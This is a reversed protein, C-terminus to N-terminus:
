DFKKFFILIKGVNNKVIDNKNNYVESIYGFKQYLRVANSNDIQDTYLRINKYGLSKALQETKILIKEGFGKLREDPVVGFWGLFVDEPYSIFSYLGTIGIIKGKVRVLFYKFMRLLVRDNETSYFLDNSGDENPFILRQVIKAQELNDKTVEEFKM